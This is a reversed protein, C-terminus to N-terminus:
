TPVTASRRGNGLTARGARVGDPFAPTQAKRKGFEAKAEAMDFFLWGAVVIRDRAAQSYLRITVNDFIISDTNAYSFAGFDAPLVEPVIGFCVSM